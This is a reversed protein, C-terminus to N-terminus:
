REFSDEGPNEGRFGYFDFVSYRWVPVQLATCLFPLM